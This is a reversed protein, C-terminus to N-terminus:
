SKLGPWLVPTTKKYAQFDADQGWRKNAAAELLPIGSVRTLLLTIFLPSLVGVWAWISTAALMPVCAVFVGLWLVIEGAYNPHRSLSWLGTSIFRGANTPKARFERKQWDAVVEVGFGLAWLTFGAYTWLTTHHKHPSAVVVLVPLLTLFVWLGQLTWSMWFRVFSPKIYTFRQDQGDQHIRWALFTGLRLAWAACMALLLKDALELPGSYHGAVYLLALYTLSGALDFFKETQLAYAPLFVLWQVAMALGACLVLLPWGGASKVTGQAGAWAALLTIGTAVVIAFLAKAQPSQTSPKM